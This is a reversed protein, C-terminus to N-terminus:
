LECHNFSLFNMWFFNTRFIPGFLQDLFNTWFIPGFFNPDLIIQTWFFKPGFYNPDLFIQTWIFKTWFIPGFVTYTGFYCLLKLIRFFSLHVVPVIETRLLEARGAHLGSVSPSSLFCVLSKIVKTHLFRLFPHNM